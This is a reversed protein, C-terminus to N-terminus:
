DTNQRIVVVNISQKWIRTKVWQTLIFNNHRPIGTIILLEFCLKGYFEVLHIESFTSYLQLDDEIEREKLRSRKKLIFDLWKAEIVFSWCRVSREKRTIDNSENDDQEPISVIGVWGVICTVSVGDRNEVVFDGVLVKGGGVIVGESVKKM